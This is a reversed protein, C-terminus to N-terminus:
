IDKPEDMRKFTEVTIKVRFHRGLSRIFGIFDRAETGGEVEEGKFEFKQQAMLRGIVGEAKTNAAFASTQPNILLKNKDDWRYGYREVFDYLETNTTLEDINFSANPDARRIQALAHRYKQFKSTNRFLTRNNYSRTSAPSNNEDEPEHKGSGNSVTGKRVPLNHYRPDNPKIWEWRNTEKNYFRRAGKLSNSSMSM